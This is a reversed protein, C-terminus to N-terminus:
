PLIRTKINNDVRLIMWSGSIKSPISNSDENIIITINNSIRSGASVDIDRM